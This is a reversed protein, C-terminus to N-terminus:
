TEESEAIGTLKNFLIEELNRRSDIIVLIQVSNNKIVYIIRYNGELIQRYKIIGQKELEPVIKGRSPFVKLEMVKSKIKQYLEKTYEPNIEYFYAVIEKLDNEAFRSLVIEYHQM